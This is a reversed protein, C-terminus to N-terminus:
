DAPCAFRTAIVPDPPSPPVGGEHTTFRSTGRLENGDVRLALVYGTYNDHFVMRVSGRAPVTWRASPYLRDWERPLPPAMTDTVPEPERRHGAFTIRWARASEGRCAPCDPATDLRVSDPLGPASVLTDAHFWRLAYCGAVADATDKETAACGAAGCALLALAARWARVM